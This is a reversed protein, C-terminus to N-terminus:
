KKIIKENYVLGDNGQIHVIYTGKSLSSVNIANNGQHLTVASIMRGLQDYLQAKLNDSTGNDQINVVDVSPNPWLSIKSASSSVSIMKILSYNNNNDFDMENIRYYNKGSVPSADTFSYNNESENYAVYTLTNWNINDTSREVYFGKANSVEGVSWNIAAQSNDLVVNFSTWTLPLIGFPFSCSTLDNGAGSGLSGILSLTSLNTLEYLQTGTSMFLAGAANFAIGEFASSAPVTATPAIIQKATVSTQASTPLPAPIKYLAYNASGSTLIWLNGLGDIAMDGSNQTKIVNSVSNGFQDLITSTITTWSNLTINYFYLNGNVDTCYYGTGNFSVCGAHVTATIPSTALTTYVNLTPNYSVFQQGAVGPNIKFYYFLGNVTNYGIANAQNPSSGTYAATNIQSGLAASTINIPYIAGSSTVGFINNSNACVQANVSQMLVICLSALIFVNIHKKTLILNHKM